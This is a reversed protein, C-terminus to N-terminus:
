LLDIILIYKSNNIHTSSIKYSEDEWIWSSMDKLELKSNPDGLDNIIFQNISNLQESNIYGDFQISKFERDKVKVSSPTFKSSAKLPISNFSANEWKFEILNSESLIKPKTNSIVKEVKNYWQINVGKGIEIEELIM